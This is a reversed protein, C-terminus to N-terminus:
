ELNIREQLYNAWKDFLSHVPGPHFHLHKELVELLTRESVTTLLMILRTPFRLNTEVILLRDDGKKDFWFSDLEEWLFSRGGSVIGMNTIRHDITEPAHSALVYVVFVVALIVGVLFIEGFALAALILILAYLAVKVFYKKSRAKFVREPSKWSVQSKADLAALHKTDLEEKSLQRQTIRASHDEDERKIFKPM